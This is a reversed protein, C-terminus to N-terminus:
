EDNLIGTETKVKAAHITHAYRILLEKRVAVSAKADDLADLTRMAEYLGAGALEPHSKGYVAPLQLLQLVGERRIREDSSAISSRGLWYIAAPRNQPLLKEAPAQLRAVAPGPKGATVELQALAIDRWEATARQEGKVANFMRSATDADGAALTLTGYYIYIGEPRQKLSMIAEYVKPLVAKAADADFWVPVLAPTMGTAADYQLQRQGPLATRDNSTALYQLSRFYPEVAAERQGAAIRAWMLSQFVMYATSSSRDVYRPYVAEAHELLGEYDGVKLRQRIRYLPGGLEELLQDFEKQKTEEVSGREIEDWTIVRDNDLRVGDEDFSVVTRDSIIELNRLVVRDAALAESFLTAPLTAPLLAIILAWVAARVPASSTYSFLIAPRRLRTM